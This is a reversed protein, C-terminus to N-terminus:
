NTLLYDTTRTLYKSIWRIVPCIVDKALTDKFGSKNM